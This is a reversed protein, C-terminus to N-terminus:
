QWLTSRTDVVSQTMIALGELLLMQRLSSGVINATHLARLFMWDTTQPKTVICREIYQARRDLM